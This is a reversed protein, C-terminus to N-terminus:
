VELNRMEICINILYSKLINKCYNLKFVYKQFTDIQYIELM